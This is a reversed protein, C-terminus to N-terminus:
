QQVCFFRYSGFSCDAGGSGDYITDSTTVNAYGSAGWLGGSNSTWNLCTENRKTWNTNLGTLVSGTLAPNISASLPFTFIGNANTQGIETGDSGRVYTTSAALVWDTHESPGGSCNATTCAIRTAAALMAKYTGDGGPKNSDSQCSSDAGAVGGLDGQTTSVSSVFIKKPTVTASFIVTCDATIAGTTYSMGWSGAPCTGTVSQSLTYGNNPSVSFAVTAGPSVSQPTAPGISVNAGSQTVTYTSSGASPSPSPDPDASASTDEDDDSPEDSPTDSAAVSPVGSAGTGSLIKCGTALSALIFFIIGVKFGYHTM